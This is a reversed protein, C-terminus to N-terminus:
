HSMRVSRKIHRYLTPSFSISCFPFASILRCLGPLKHAFRSIFDSYIRTKPRGVAVIMMTTGVKQRGIALTMMTTGAPRQGPRLILIMSSTNVAQRGSTYTDDYLRSTATLPQTDGSHKYHRSYTAWIYTNDYHRNSAM